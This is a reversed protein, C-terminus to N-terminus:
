IEGTIAESVNIIHDGIRELSSFVNNYVMASKVNYDQSGLRNQHEERMDDKLAKIQNELEQAPLKSVTRYDASSLNKCMIKFATDILHNLENIKERQEPLFYIDEENKKEIIISLQYYIDAIRELDNCINLINRFILSTQSTMEGKTLKTIHETIDIELIDSVEEYEKIKKIIKQQKKRDTTNILNQFNEGMRSVIVGYKETEKQLQITAMEPMGGINNLFKIKLDDKIGRNEAGVLGLGAIKILWPSFNILILANILNFATHFASLGITMDVPNRFIDEVGFVFNITTSLLTLFWPLVLVMWFVGIINFWSHLRASIKAEKNAIISAILATTTTGINEGLVISAAVDLPLWGQACMTLTIAMAVSSSQVLITIITGVLVFFLRSYIGHQTFNKLWEFLLSNENIGPVAERLFGLGLFLLGFGMIFEGWYKWRGRQIFLMPVGIGFISVVHDSLTVKFGLLSVLWGTVTTGVNAGMIIGVSETVTLLGANVFSVVMVTTASSSQIIGTIMFGTLFGLWKNSTINSLINRLQSGAVRQVAESMLKMGYIFLCVAGFIQIIDFIGFSM